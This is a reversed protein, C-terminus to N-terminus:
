PTGAALPKAAQSAGKRAGPESVFRGSAPAPTPDILLAHHASGLVLRARAPEADREPRRSRSGPPPRSPRQM